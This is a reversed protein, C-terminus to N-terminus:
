KIVSKGRGKSFKSTGTRLSTKTSLVFSSGILMQKNESTYASKWYTFDDFIEFQLMNKCVCYRDTFRQLFINEMIIVTEKM